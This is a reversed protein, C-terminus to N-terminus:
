WDCHKNAQLFGEQRHVIRAHAIFAEIVLLKAISKYMNLREVRETRQRRRNPCKSYQNRWSKSQRQLHWRQPCLQREPRSIPGCWVTRRKHAASRRARWRYTERHPARPHNHWTNRMRRSKPYKRHRTTPRPSHHTQNNDRSFLCQQYMNRIEIKCCKIANEKRVVEDSAVTIEPQPFRSTRNNAVYDTWLQTCGCLQRYQETHQADSTCPSNKPLCLHIKSLLAIAIPLTLLCM